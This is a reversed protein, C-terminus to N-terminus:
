KTEPASDVKGMGVDIRESFTTMIGAKIKISIPEKPKGENIRFNPRDGLDEPSVSVSTRM